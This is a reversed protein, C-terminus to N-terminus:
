GALMLQPGYLVSIMHETYVQIWAAAAAAGAAQCFCTHDESFARLM